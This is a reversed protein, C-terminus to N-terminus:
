DEEREKKVEGEVSGERLKREKVCFILGLAEDRERRL